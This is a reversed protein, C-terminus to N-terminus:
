SSQSYRNIRALAPWPLKIGLEIRGAASDHGHITTYRTVQNFPWPKDCVKTTSPVKCKCWWPQPINPFVLEVCLINGPAQMNSLWFHPSFDGYFTFIHLPWTQRRPSCCTPVDTIAVSCSVHHGQQHVFSISSSLYPLYLPKFVM